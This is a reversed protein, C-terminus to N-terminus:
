KVKINVKKTAKNYYANGKFTVTAKYTGKKILKKIKFTAKGKANTKATYTKKKIKITVKANKIPTKGSKLTISYKKVKKAKKFTKKKAVIAPKAKKVTVKAEASSTRYNSNSFTIKATYTKPVLKGVNVKIQGNKDTTYYKVGNLDVSIKIGSVPNQNIDKLTVILYKDVNYTTTVADATIQTQLPNVTINATATFANHNMDTITTVALTYTGADLNSVTITNNKIEVIAKPQSVVEATIGTANTFSATASGIGNYDFVIPAEVVVSSNLKNVTITTTNTVASYHKNPITTVKLIYNGANLGSVTIVNGEVKVTAESHDVVYATVNIANVLTATSTGFSEYDFVIPTLGVSSDEINVTINTTNSVSNHNSDPNTTVKLIYDGVELGSVTIENGNVSVVAESHDVVSATINTAGTFTAISRGTDGINYVIETASVSSDAKSITLTVNVPTVQYEQNEVSCSAIYDGADIDVIWGEGSLAYYTDFLANNKYVRITINANNVEKGNERTLNFLLRDGSNYTSSFDLVKLTAKPYRSGYTDNGSIGAKNDKFICNCYTGIYMAGGYETATNNIFESNDVAMQFTGGGQKATNNIFKCNDAPCTKGNGGDMAGGYKSARNNIFTCNTASSDATAGGSTATNSTFTCNKASGGYIAGGERASNSKFTCNVASSYSIAGGTLGINSNFTCNVASGSAVAGGFGGVNAKNSTFICNVASASYMAGGSGESGVSNSTFTCNEASGRYMAGGKEAASNSNFTCNKASGDYIAGGCYGVSNSIFTCNEASGYYMAGGYSSAYNSIFICNVAKGGYMAGGWRTAQNSQFICNVANGGYIAGGDASRGNVFYIDKFTVNSHFVSFIHAARSGDITFGNGHITVARNIKVGDKFDADTSSNFKYDSHLYVDSDDNGNIDANLSTFNKPNETIIEGTEESKLDDDEIADDISDQTLEIQDDSTIATDNADSACVSSIAFLLCIALCLIFIGRKM